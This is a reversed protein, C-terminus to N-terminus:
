RAIQPYGGNESDDATKVRTLSPRRIHQYFDLSSLCLIEVINEAEGDPTVRQSTNEAAGCLNNKKAPAQWSTAAIAHHNSTSSLRAVPAGGNKGAAM